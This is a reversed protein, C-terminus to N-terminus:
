EKRGYIKKLNDLGAKYMDQILKVANAETAGSPTFNCSWEVTSTGNGNDVVRIEAVYNAVPLPSDVISYLYLKETDSVHELREVIAGGGVLKLERISGKGECEATSKKVMPHWEGVTNFRGVLDWLLNAPVALETNMSVKAM